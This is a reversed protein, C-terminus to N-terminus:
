YLGMVTAVPPPGGVGPYVGDVLVAASTSDGATGAYSFSSNDAGEILTRLDELTGTLPFPGWGELLPGPEVWEASITGGGVTVALDSAGPATPTITLAAQLTAPPSDPPM